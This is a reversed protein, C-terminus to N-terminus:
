ANRARLKINRLPATARWTKSSEIKKFKNLLDDFEAQKKSLLTQTRKRDDKLHQLEERLQVCTSEKTVIITKLSEAHAVQQAFVKLLHQYKEREKNYDSEAQKAQQDKQDFITQLATNMFVYHKNYIHDHTKKHIEPIRLLTIQSQPKVRYSFCPFSLKEFKWGKSIAHIWFEWDELAIVSTDFGECDFWVQKRFVACADIYNIRILHELNFSDVDISLNRLGFDIRDGYVVGVEPIEQLRKLAAVIFGANIKNDADLPLIYDARAKKCLANRAQALGTNEQFQIQYGLRMLNHHTDRTAPDTSGDDIILVESDEPAYCEVSKLAELLYIGQNYSPIIISIPPKTIKHHPRNFKLRYQTNWYPTSSFAALHDLERLQNVLNPFCFEFLTAAPDELAPIKYTAPNIQPLFSANKQSLFQNIFNPNQTYATLSMLSCHTHTKCYTLITQTETEWLDLIEKPNGLYKAEGTYQSYEFYEWPTLYLFVYHYKETIELTPSFSIASASSECLFQQSFLRAPSFIEPVIFVLKHSAPSEM